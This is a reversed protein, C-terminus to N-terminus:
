KKQNWSRSKQIIHLCPHHSMKILIHKTIQKRNRKLSMDMKWLMKLTMMPQIIESHDRRRAHMQNKM